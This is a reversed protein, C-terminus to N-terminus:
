LREYLDKCRKCSDIHTHMELIADSDRLLGEKLLYAEEESLCKCEITKCLVKEECASM